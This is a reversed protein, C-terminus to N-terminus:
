GHHVEALWAALGIMSDFCPLGLRGAEKREARSGDSREWLPDFIVADCRRMLEMTGALWFVDAVLGDFHSTNSHPIVPYAGALCVQAGLERARQINQEVGWATAARYPGAVYVIKM